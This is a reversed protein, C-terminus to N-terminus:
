AREDQEIRCLGEVVQPDWGAVPEFGQSAVPVPLLMRM